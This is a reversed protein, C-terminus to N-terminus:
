QGLKAFCVVRKLQFLCPDFYGAVEMQSGMIENGVITLQIKSRGSVPFWVVGLM